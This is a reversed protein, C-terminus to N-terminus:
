LVINLQKGEMTKELKRAYLIAEKLAKFLPVSKCNIPIYIKFDKVFQVESLTM